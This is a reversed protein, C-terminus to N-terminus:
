DTNMVILYPLVPSAITCRYQPSYHLVRVIVYHCNCYSCLEVMTHAVETHGLYRSRSFVGEGRGKGDGFVGSNVEYELCELPEETGHTTSRTFIAADHPSLFIDNYRPKHLDELGTESFLYTAMATRKLIM